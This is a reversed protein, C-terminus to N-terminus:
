SCFGSSDTWVMDISCRISETDSFIRKLIFLLFLRDLLAMNTFVINLILLANTSVPLPLFSCVSGCSCVIGLHSSVCMCLCQLHCHAKDTHVFPRPLHGLFAAPRRRLIWPQLLHKAEINLLVGAGWKLTGPNSDLIQSRLGVGQWHVSPSTGTSVGYSPGQSACPLGPGLERTGACSQGFFSRHRQRAFLSSVQFYM